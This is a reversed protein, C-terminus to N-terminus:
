SRNEEMLLEQEEVKTITKPVNSVPNQSYLYVSFLVIIISLTTNLHIPINFLLYCLIATFIIELASAFNKLISNLNKLFFSTVIGIAASNLMVILVKFQLLKQVNEYAFTEHINGQIILLLANCIISDVYMFVNQVYINVNAGNNKLLYENYVGALCSCLIQIFIFLANINIQITAVNSKADDNAEAPQNFNVQKVM